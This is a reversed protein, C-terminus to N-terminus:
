DTWKGGKGALIFLLSIGVMTFYPAASCLVPPVAAMKCLYEKMGTAAAGRAVKGAHLLALQLLLLPRSGQQRAHFLALM